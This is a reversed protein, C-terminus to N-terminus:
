TGKVKGDEKDSDVEEELVFQVSSRQLVSVIAEEEGGQEKLHVTVGDKAEVLPPFEASVPTTEVTTAPAIVFQRRLAVFTAELVGLLLVVGSAIWVTRASGGEALADNILLISRVREAPQQGDTIRRDEWRFRNVLLALRRASGDWAIDAVTLVADQILASLITLDDADAAGLHLPDGEGDTFSADVM